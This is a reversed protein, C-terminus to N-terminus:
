ILGRKEAENFYDEYRLPWHSREHDRQMWGFEREMADLAICMQHAVELRRLLRNDSLSMLEVRRENTVMRGNYLYRKTNM